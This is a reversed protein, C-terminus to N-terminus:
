KLEKPNIPQTRPTTCDRRVKEVILAYVVLGFVIAM